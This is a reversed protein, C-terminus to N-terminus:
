HRTEFYVRTAETCLIKVPFDAGNDRSLKRAAHSNVEVTVQGHGNRVVVSNDGDVVPDPGDVRVWAEETSDLLIVDLWTTSDHYGDLVCTKVAGAAANFTRTYHSDM